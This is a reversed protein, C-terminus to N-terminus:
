PRSKKGKLFGALLLVGNILATQFRFALGADLELRLIINIANEKENKVHLRKKQQRKRDSEGTQGQPSKQGHHNEKQEQAFSQNPGPHFPNQGPFLGISSPNRLSNLLCPTKVTFSWSKYLQLRRLEIQGRWNPRAQQAMSIIAVVMDRKSRARNPASTNRGEGRWASKIITAPVTVLFIAGWTTRNNLWIGSGFYTMAIPAQAIEPPGNLCPYLTSLPMSRKRGTSTCIGPHGGRGSARISAKIVNCRWISAWVNRPAFRGLCMSGSAEASNGTGSNPACSKFGGLLGSTQSGGFSM